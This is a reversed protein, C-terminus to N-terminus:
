SRIGRRRISRLYIALGAGGAIFAAAVAYNVSASASPARLIEYAAFGFSFVIAALVLVVHFRYLM